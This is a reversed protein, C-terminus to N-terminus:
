KTISSNIDNLIQNNLDEEKPQLSITLFEDQEYPYSLIKSSDGFHYDVRRITRLLKNTANEQIRDNRELLEQKRIEDSINNAAIVRSHYRIPLYPVVKINTINEKQLISFFITTALM